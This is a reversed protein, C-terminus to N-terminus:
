PPATLHRPAPPPGTARSSLLAPLRARLHLLPLPTQLVSPWAPRRQWLQLQSCHKGPAALGAASGTAAEHAPARSARGATRFTSAAVGVTGAYERCSPLARPQTNPHLPRSLVICTVTYPLSSPPALCVGLLPHHCPCSPSFHSPCHCLVSGSDHAESPGTHTFFLTEARDKLSLGKSVGTRGLSCRRFPVRGSRSLAQPVGLGQDSVTVGVFGPGGHVPLRASSLRSKQSHAPGGWVAAARGRSVRRPQKM